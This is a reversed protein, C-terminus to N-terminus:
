SETMFHSDLRPPERECLARAMRPPLAYFGRSAAAESVAAAHPVRRARPTPMGADRAKPNAISWDTFGSKRL